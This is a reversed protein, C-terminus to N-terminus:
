EAGAAIIQELKDKPIKRIQSMRKKYWDKRCDDSCFKQWDRGKKFQKDCYECKSM